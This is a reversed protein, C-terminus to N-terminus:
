DDIEVEYRYMADYLEIPIIKKYKDAVDKIYNEKFNKYVTFAQFPRNIPFYGLHKRKELTSCRVKLWKDGNIKNSWEDVGIPYDGRSKDCKVFLTNIREPVIICTEPSYIKNGKVLIDKDLHMKEGEVEYYNKYFWKAFNQFNHWEECVYCDIYTPCKNLMYPDYCRQLMGYWVKYADTKKNNITIKYKGKGIYGVGYISPYYPNKVDGKEFHQYTTHIKAKHEDQFEVIIDKYGNYKIIKMEYGGLSEKNKRTEGLRENKQEQRLGM